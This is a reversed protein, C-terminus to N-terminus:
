LLIARVALFSFLSGASLGRRFGVSVETQARWGLRDIVSSDAMQVGYNPSAKDEETCLNPAGNACPGFQTYVDAAWGVLCCPTEARSRTMVYDRMTTSTGCPDVITFVWAWLQGGTSFEITETTMETESFLNSYSESTSQSWTNSVDVSTESGAYTFGQSVSLTTETGWTKSTERTTGHTTGRSITRTLGGNVYDKLKWKGTVISINDCLKGGVPGSLFGISDMEEDAHGFVSMIGYGEPPEVWNTAPNPDNGGGGGGFEPSERGNNLYFKLGSVRQTGVVKVKTIYEGESIKFTGSNENSGGGRGHGVKQGSRYTVLMIGIRTKTKFDFQQIGWAEQGHSKFDNFEHVRVGGYMESVITDPPYGACDAGPVFWSAMCLLCVMMPGIKSPLSM